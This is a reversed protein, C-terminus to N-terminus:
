DWRTAQRGREGPVARVGVAKPHIEKDNEAGPGSAGACVGPVTDSDSQVLGRYFSSLWHAPSVTRERRRRPLDPCLSAPCAIPQCELREHAQGPVKTSRWVGRAAIARKREKGSPGRIAAM